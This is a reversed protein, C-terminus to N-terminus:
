SDIINGFEDKDNELNKALIQKATDLSELYLLRLYEGDPEKNKRAVRGESTSELFCTRRSADNNITTKITEEWKKIMEKIAEQPIFNAALSYLLLRDFLGIYINLQNPDAKSIKEQIKKTFDSM